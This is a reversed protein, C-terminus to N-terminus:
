ALRRRMPTDSHGVDERHSNVQVSLIGFLWRKDLLVENNGIAKLLKQGPIGFVSFIFRPYM